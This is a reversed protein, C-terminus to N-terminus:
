LCTETIRYVRDNNMRYMSYKKGFLISVGLWCPVQFDWIFRVQRFGGTKSQGPGMCLMIM